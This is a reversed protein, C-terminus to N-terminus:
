NKGDHWDKLIEQAKKRINNNWFFRKKSLFTLYDGAEKLGLEEILLLNELIIRNKLGLLNPIDLLTSIAKKKTKEDRSLIILAEKKLPVDRTQLVSLLFGEDVESLERMAKLIEIKIFENTSFFLNKLIEAALFSNIKKLSDVIKVMFEIDHYKKELNKNFIPLGLPFFNFFLKLVYPNVKNENFIKDLYFDADLSTKELSDILDVLDSSPTEEWIINEIFNSIRKDLEDFLNILSKEARKKKLVDLLIKLSRLDSGRFMKELEQYVTKLILNLREKNKEIDLLNIIVLRFNKDLLHRDFNFEKEFSIAKLLLSLTNQYVKSITNSDPITLLDQIKKSIKPNDKLSEKNAVQNLLSNAINNQREQGTIRSFLNLSLTDFNENTEIQSWLLHALNEEDLDKFFLRITDLKDSSLSDKYRLISNFTENICKNFKEKQHDRLYKLFRSINERLQVDELLDNLKIKGIIRGFNDACENITQGDEKEVAEKLLYIWVDIEEQGRLFQSYDLEEVFIHSDKEQSLINKLGGARLIEKKPKAVGSLFDVLEKISVGERIEINKIKRFHFMSALETYLVTKQWYRGDMFLSDPNISIKIPKLFGLLTDIKQKFDEVSKIFYPHEKFYASANNLAIRLGKLFDNLAEDKNM